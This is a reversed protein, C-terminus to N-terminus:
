CSKTRCMLFTSNPCASPCHASVFVTNRTTRNLSASCRVCAGVQLVADYCYVAPQLWAAIRKMNLLQLAAAPNSRWLQFALSPSADAHLTAPSLMSRLQPGPEPRGPAECALCLVARVAM